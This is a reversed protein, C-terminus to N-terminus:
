RTRRRLGFWAMVAVPVGLAVWSWTDGWGDSVLASILGSTTLVGLAIPWGWLSGSRTSAADELDSPEAPASLGAAPRPASAPTSSPM